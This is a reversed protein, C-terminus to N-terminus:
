GIVDKYLRQLNTGMVRDVDGSSLGLKALGDRVVEMRRPGNLADIFYPLENEVV